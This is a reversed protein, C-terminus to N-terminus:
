LYRRNNRVDIPGMSASRNISYPEEDEEPEEEPVIEQSVSIIQHAARDLEARSMELAEAMEKSATRVFEPDCYKGLGGESLVKVLSFYTM